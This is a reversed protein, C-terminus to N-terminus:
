SNQFYSVLLAFIIILAVCMVCYGITYDTAELQIM